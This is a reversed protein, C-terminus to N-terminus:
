GRRHARLGAADLARSRPKAATRIPRTRIRRCLLPGPRARGACRRPQRASARHELLMQQRCLTWRPRTRAAAGASTPSPVGVRTDFHRRLCRLQLRHLRTSGAYGLRHRPARPERELTGQIVGRAVARPAPTCREAGAHRPTSIARAAASTSVRAVVETARNPKLLVRLGGAGPRRRRGRRDRRPHM